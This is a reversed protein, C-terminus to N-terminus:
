SSVEGEAFVVQNRGIAVVLVCLALTFGLAINVIFLTPIDMNLFLVVWATANV